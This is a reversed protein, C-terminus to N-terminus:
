WSLADRRLIEAGAGNGRLRSKGTYWQLSQALGLRAAIAGVADSRDRRDPLVAADDGRSRRRRRGEM